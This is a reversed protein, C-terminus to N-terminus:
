DQAAAAPLTIVFHAGKDAPVANLSGGYAEFLFRSLFLGIGLGGHARTASGDRQQFVKFLTELQDAPIGPGEDRVGIRVRGQDRDVEVRIIGGPPSFKIANDLVHELAIQGRQDNVTVYANHSRDEIQVKVGKTEMETQLRSLATRLLPLVPTPNSAPVKGHSISEAAELLNEILKLLNEGNRRIATSADRAEEDLNSNSELVESWGLISTLPTRLEHYINSLLEDRFLAVRETALRAQGLEIGSQREQEELRSQADKAVRMSRFVVWFGIAVTLLDLISILIFQFNSWEAAQRSSASRLSLLRQEEVLMENVLFRFQDMAHKGDGQVVLGIAANAGQNRRAQVIHEAIDLKRRMVPELQELLARQRSNDATLERIEQLHEQAL